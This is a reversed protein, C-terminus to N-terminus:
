KFPATLSTRPAFSTAFAHFYWQESDSEFVRISPEARIAPRLIRRTAVNNKGNRDVYECTVGFTICRKCNPKGEDCKIKRKREHTLGMKLQSRKPLLKSAVLVGM